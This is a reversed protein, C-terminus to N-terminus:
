IFNARHTNVINNQSLLFFKGLLIINEDREQDWEGNGNGMGRKVSVWHKLVYSGLVPMSCAASM